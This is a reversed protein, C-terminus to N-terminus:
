TKRFTFMSTIFHQKLEWDSIIEVNVPRVYKTRCRMLIVILIQWKLVKKKFFPISNNNNNNNCDKWKLDIKKGNAKGNDPEAAQWADESSNPSEATTDPTRLLPSVLNMYGQEPPQQASVSARTGDSVHELKNRSIADLLDWPDYTGSTLSLSFPHSLFSYTQHYFHPAECDRNTKRKLSM